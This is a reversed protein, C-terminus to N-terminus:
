VWADDMDGEPDFPSNTSGTDGGGSTRIVDARSLKLVELSTEEYPLKKENIEM